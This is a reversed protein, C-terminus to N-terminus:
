KCNVQMAKLAAPFGLRASVSLDTCADLTDNLKIKSMGRYYFVSADTENFILFRSFDDIAASYNKLSYEAM